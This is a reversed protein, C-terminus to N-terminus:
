RQDHAQELVLTPDATLDGGAHDAHGPRQDGEERHRHDRELAGAGNVVRFREAEIKLSRQPCCIVPLMAIPPATARSPTRGETSRSRSRRDGSQDEALKRPARSTITPAIPRAIASSMEFASLPM